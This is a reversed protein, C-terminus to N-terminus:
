AEGASITEEVARREPSGTVPAPARHLPMEPESNMPPALGHSAPGARPAAAISDPFRAM